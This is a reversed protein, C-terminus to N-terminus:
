EFIIKNAKIEVGNQSTTMKAIEEVHSNVSPVRYVSIAESTHKTILAVDDAVTVCIFENELELRFQAM